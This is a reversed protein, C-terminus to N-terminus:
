VRGPLYILAFLFVWVLDVFHWYLGAVAPPSHYQPSYTDRRARWAIAALTVIGVSVHVGHLGTAVFYFTFFLRAGEGNLAFDKAPFLHEAFEGSYEVGKLTLFIIGLVAAGAFLRATVRGLGAKVVEVGWAVLFSSTLLVATNATGIVINTHRAAEAFAQPYGHRYVAYGLVLGGFFLVETALFVWMGLTAAEQQQMLDSYPKAPALEPM